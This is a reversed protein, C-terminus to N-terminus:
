QSTILQGNNPNGVAQGHLWHLRFNAYLTAPDIYMEMNLTLGTKLIGETVTTMVGPFPVEAFGPMERPDRMARAAYITSDPTGAFGVVNGAAASTIGPYKSLAFGNVNPLYGDVIANANNQNWMYGVIRLDNQFSTWPGTGAAYFRMWDPVGANDLIGGVAVLHTYDWGAGLVTKTNTAGNAVADAGTRAPFNGVTWIAAIDDVMQNAIAITLPAVQERILDRNTATYQAPTFQASTQDHSGLTVSVDTTTSNQTPAGFAVVSPIAITRTVVAQNLVAFPSGTDKDTFGTSIHRLLPRKTYILALAEMILIQTAALTGLTNAMLQGARVGVGMACEVLGLLVFAALWHGSTVGIILACALAIFYAIRQNQKM